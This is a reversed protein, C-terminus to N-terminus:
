PTDGKETIEETIVILENFLQPVHESPLSDEREGQTNVDLEVRCASWDGATETVRLTRLLEGQLQIGTVRAVSWRSLRNITLNEMGSKSPRPRNISYNFDSSNDRM